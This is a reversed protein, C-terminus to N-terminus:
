EAAVRKRGFIPFPGGIWWSLLLVVPWARVTTVISPGSTVAARFERRAELAAPIDDPDHVVVRVGGIAQSYHWFLQVVHEDLLSARIGMSELYTRFLHATEATEFSAITEM